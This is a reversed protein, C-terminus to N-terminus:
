HDNFDLGLSVNLAEFFVEKPMPGTPIELTNFCTRFYFKDPAISTGIMITENFGLTGKSTISIVFKELFVDDSLTIKERLWEIRALLEPTEHHPRLAELVRERTISIGQIASLARLPNIEIDDRLDISVGGYFARAARVYSRIIQKAEKVEEGHQCLMLQRFATKNALTPNSIVQHFIEQEPHIEGLLQATASIISENSMKANAIQVFRFFSPHLIPGILLDDVGLANKEYLQSYLKGLMFLFRAQQESNCILLGSDTRTFVEHDILARGLEYVFQKVLGGLDQTEPYDLFIVKNPLGILSAYQLFKKPHARLQGIECRITGPMLREYEAPQLSPAQELLTRIEVNQALMIMDRKMFFHLPGGVLLSALIEQWGQRVAARISSERHRIYHVMIYDDIIRTAEFHGYQTAQESALTLSEIPMVPMKEDLLYRLLELRNNAAAKGLGKTVAKLSIDRGSAILLQVIESYDENCAIEFSMDFFDQNFPRDLDLLIQLCAVDRRKVVKILMSSLALDHDKRRILPCLDALVEHNGTNCASILALDLREYSIKVGRHKMLHYLDMRNQQIADLIAKDTDAKDLGGASLLAEVVTIHVRLAVEVLARGVTQKALKGSDILFQIVRIDGKEAASRFARGIVTASIHSGTTLWSSLAAYTPDTRGEPSLLYERAFPYEPAHAQGAAAMAEQAVAAAAAPAAAAQAAVPRIADADQDHRFRRVDM